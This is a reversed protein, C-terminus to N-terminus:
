RRTHTNIWSRVYHETEPAAQKNCVLRVQDLELRNDHTIEIGITAREPQLLRYVLYRGEVIRQDYSAICHHMQKGEIVLEYHSQIYEIDDTPPILPAPYIRERQINAQQQNIIEALQDHITNIQAIHTSTKLIQGYQPYNLQQAMYFADLTHKLQTRTIHPGTQQLLKFQLITADQMILRIRMPDFYPIHGHKKDNYFSRTYLQQILEIDRQSFKHDSHYKSLLHVTANNQPLQYLGVITKRKASFWPWVQDPELQHSKAYDMIMWLLTPASLLLQCAAESRSVFWLASFT